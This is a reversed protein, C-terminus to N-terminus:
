SNPFGLVPELNEFTRDMAYSARFLVPIHGYWLSLHSEAADEGMKAVAAVYLASVLGSRDAGSNCHVLIPKEVNQLVRVLEVFQAETLERKASMRFNVHAIGLRQVQAIEDDYWDSGVNEGRLNIITRIGYEKQYYSIDAATPQASRYFEGPVVPHFNGSIQMAGLYFDSAGIWASVFSCLLVILKRRWSRLSHREVHARDEPEAEMVLKALEALRDLRARLTDPDDKM